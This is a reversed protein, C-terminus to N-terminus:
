EDDEDDWQPVYGAKLRRKNLIYMTVGVIVIVSVMVAALIGMVQGLNMGWSSSRGTIEYQVPTYNVANGYDQMLEQPVIPAEEEAQAPLNMGICYETDQDVSALYFHAYGDRDVVTSQIRTLGKRDRQFLTAEQYAWSNGLRILVESNVQASKAFRLVFSAHTGLEDSLEQAGETLTYSLNYKGSLSSSDLQAADMKWVSGNQTTITVNADKGALSDVFGSDIEDTDKVYVNVNVNGSTGETKELEKQLADTAEEWGEDGNVTITIEKNGPDAEQDGEEPRFTSEQKVTVTSNEGPTVTVNEQKLTGDGNDTLSGSNVSGEAKENTVNGVSDFGPVAEGISGMIQEPTQATGEYYVTNLGDCGDFSFKNISEATDPLSVSSLMECKYFMFEPIETIAARVDATVLSTCYGFACLGISTVSNPITISTISECRYFGKTGISTLGNPLDISTVSRCNCFAFEGIRRVGSGISLVKMDTCDMFAFDGITQVSGPIVVATLNSCEYFALEGIHTLGEPLELRFIDNRFEYWPAYEGSSFNDMAGSGTITLTGASLHWSLDDGCTGSEAAQVAPVYGLILVLSLLLAMVRLIYKSLTYRSM